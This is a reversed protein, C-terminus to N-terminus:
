AHALILARAVSSTFKIIVALAISSDITLWFPSTSVARQACAGLVVSPNSRHHISVVEMRPHLARIFSGAIAGSSFAFAKSSIFSYSALAGSTRIIAIVSTGAPWLLVKGGLGTAYVRLGPISHLM